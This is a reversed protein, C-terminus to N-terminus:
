QREFTMKWLGRLEGMTYNVAKDNPYKDAIVKQVEATIDEQTNGHCALCTPMGLPIAKYFYIKNEEELLIHKPQNKDGMLATIENWAQLDIDTAIANDSNRNKNSLRKIEFRNDAFSNTLPVANENCFDVAGVFGVEGIKKSVNMLLLKQTETTVSDALAIYETRQAETLPKPTNVCSVLLLAILIFYLKKM